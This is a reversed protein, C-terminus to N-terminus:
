NVFTNGMAYMQLQVVACLIIYNSINYWGYVISSINWGNIEFKTFTRQCSSAYLPIDKIMRVPINYKDVLSLIGPERCRPCLFGIRIEVEIVTDSIGFYAFRFQFFRLSFSDVGM